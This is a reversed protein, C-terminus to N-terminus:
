PGSSLASARQGDPVEVSDIRREVRDAKVWSAVAIGLTVVVAVGVGFVTRQLRTFGTEIRDVGATMRDMAAAMDKRRQTGEAVFKDLSKRGEEAQKQLVQFLAIRDNRAEDRFQGVSEFHARMLDGFAGRMEAWESKIGNTRETGLFSDRIEQAEESTVEKSRFGGPLPPPPPIEPDTPPEDM